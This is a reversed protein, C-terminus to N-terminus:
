IIARKNARQASLHFFPDRVPLHTHWFTNHGRFTNSHERAFDLVDFCESLNSKGPEREVEGWKCGNEAVVHGFFTNFVDETFRPHPVSINLTSGFHFRQGKRQSVSSLVERLNINGSNEYGHDILLDVTLVSSAPVVLGPLLALLPLFLMM